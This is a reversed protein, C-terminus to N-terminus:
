DIVLDQRIFPMHNELLEFDLPICFRNAYAIAEDESDSSTNGAGVRHRLM